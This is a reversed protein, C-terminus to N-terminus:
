SYRWVSPSQPNVGARVDVHTAFGGAVGIGGFIRLSRVEELHIYGRPIDAARGAIVPIRGTRALLPALELAQGYAHQSRSAGGVRRNHAEDRFGSVITLPRGGKHARLRELAHLLDRHVWCEGDKPGNARTRTRLESVTFHPSLRGTKGVELLASQTRAGPIGDVVLNHGPLACALQFRAVAATTRQGIVGDQPGPDFGAEALRRQLVDTKM